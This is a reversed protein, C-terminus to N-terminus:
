GDLTEFFSALGATDIGPENLLNFAFANAGAEAERTDNASLVQDGMIAILSNGKADGPLLSLIGASRVARFALLTPDRAKVHGIEHALVGAVAGPSTATDIQGWLIVMQGGPAAFANVMGYDFVQLRVDYRLGQGATLRYKLRAL